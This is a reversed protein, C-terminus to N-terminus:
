LKYEFRYKNGDKKLYRLTFSFNKIMLLSPTIEISLSNNVINFTGNLIGFDGEGQIDIKNPNTINYIAVLQKINTPILSTVIGNLKIDSINIKNIVIFPNITIDFIAIPQNKYFISTNRGSYTVINNTIKSSIRVDYKIIYQQVVYDILKQTPLFHIITIIFIFIFILM